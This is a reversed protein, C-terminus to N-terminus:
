LFSWPDLRDVRVVSEDGDVSAEDVGADVPVEEEEEESPEDPEDPEGAGAEAEVEDSQRVPPVAGSGRGTGINVPAEM